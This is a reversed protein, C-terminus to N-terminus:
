AGHSKRYEKPSTGYIRKFQRNFYSVNGYGVQRAITHIEDTTELLLREAAFIRCKNVYDIISDGTFRKFLKMAYFGGYGCAKAIEDVSISEAYRDRIYLLMTNVAYRKKDDAVNPKDHPRTVLANLAREISDDDNPIINSVADIVRKRLEDNDASKLAYSDGNLYYAYKRIEGNASSQLDITIERYRADKENLITWLTRPCIIAADGVALATEKGDILAVAEGRTILLITLEACPAIPRFATKSNVDTIRCIIKNPSAAFDTM